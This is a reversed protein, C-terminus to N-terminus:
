SPPGAEKEPGTFKRIAAQVNAGGLGIDALSKLISGTWAAMILGYVAVEVADFADNFAAAMFLVAWPVFKFLLDTRAFDAIRALDFKQTADKLAAIVGFILDVLVVVIAAWLRGNHVLESIALSINM